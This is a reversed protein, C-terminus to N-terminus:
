FSYRVGLRVVRPALVVEAQDFKPDPLFGTSSGYSGLISYRKIVTSANTLNFIDCLFNLSGWGPFLVHKAVRLDITFVNPYRHSAIPEVLVSSNVVPNFPYGQQYRLFMGINMDWPIHYTGSVKLQWDTALASYPRGNTYPTNTPNFFQDFGASDPSDYHAEQRQLVFGGLLSFNHSYVKQLAIELADYSRSYGDINRLINRGDPSFHLSFTQVSIPGIPTDGAIVGSPTWNEPGEGFLLTQHFDSYYRHLYNASVILDQQCEKQIGGVFETVIPSSLHSAVLENRLIESFDITSFDIVEDPTIVRDNNSNNYDVSIDFFHTAPDFYRSIRADYADAYRAYRAILLTRNDGTVDFSVGVRPSLTDFSVPAENGTYHLSPFFSDMGPGLFSPAVITQLPSTIDTPLTKSTQRDFRIGADVHLRKLQFKDDAYFTTRDIREATTSYPYYADIYGETLPDNESESYYDYIYFSGAGYATDTANEQLRSTKFDFGFHFEHDSGLLGEEFHSLEVSAEHSSQEYGYSFNGGSNDGYIVSFGAGVYGYRADLLTNDDMAWSYDTSIAGPLVTQPRDVVQYFGGQYSDLLDNQPKFYHFQIQQDSSVRFDLKANWASGENKVSEDASNARNSHDKRYAGWGFLHDNFIPGGFEFGFDNLTNLRFVPKADPSEADPHNGSQLAKDSFFYSSSGSWKRGGQNTILTISTGSTFRTVGSGGTIVQIEQLSQADVDNPWHGEYKGDPPKIDLGNYYWLTDTRASGRTEISSFEGNNASPESGASSFSPGFTSLVIGPILDLLGYVTNNNPVADVFNRDLVWTISQNKPDLLTGRSLGDPPKKQLILKLSITADPVVSAEQTKADLYGKKRADVRYSGPPLHEFRFTGDNQSLTQMVPFAESKLTVTAAEVPQGARDIVDGQIVATNNDASKLLLDLERSAGASLRISTKTITTYGKLAVTITYEGPSLNSIIYKGSTSSTVRFPAVKSSEIQVQAGALDIGQENLVRGYITGKFTDIQGFLPFAIFIAAFFALSTRFGKAM